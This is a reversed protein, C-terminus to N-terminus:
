SLVSGFSDNELNKSYSIHMIIEPFLQLVLQFLKIGSRFIDLFLTLDVSLGNPSHRKRVPKRKVTVITVPVDM